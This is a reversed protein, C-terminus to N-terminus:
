CCTHNARVATQAPTMTVLHHQKTGHL